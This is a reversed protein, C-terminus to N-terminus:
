IFIIYLAIIFLLVRIKSVNKNKDILKFEVMKGLREIEEEEGSSTSSKGSEDSSM